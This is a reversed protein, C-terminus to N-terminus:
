EQPRVVEKGANEVEELWVLLRLVEDVEELSILNYRRHTKFLSRALKIDVVVPVGIKEAYTRVALARQNKEYVSILPFPMLEPKFYIGIAIHTPNAIILRSNEVDSKVQESLIEMHIERRRSKIEPNGEQEKMERKVEEKDMKMDKMTLFYEALADLVLVVISCGVCTIVLSFLLERWTIAIGTIDGHLQSFLQIKYGDWVIFLAVVFSALYLLTKVTDKVTRMSFLKKVGEVPNLASLNIKLAETALVFGAQLLAPLASCFLCLLLFPLMYKLAIWFVALSYDAINQEFNNDVISKIISMFENFSAYSVLYAVGGLTLCTIILDKSKFSQGKKSSEELRKRTPQETKNSSMRLAGNM